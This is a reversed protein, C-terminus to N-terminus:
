MILFACWSNIVQNTKLIHLCFDKIHDNHYYVAAAMSFLINIRHGYFTSMQLAVPPTCSKLYTEFLLSFGSKQDAGPACLKTTARIFDPTSAVGWDFTDTIIIAKAWEKLAIEAQSGLNVLVHLNCKFHNIDILSKKLDDSFTNFNEIILPLCDTRWKELMNKLSSNVVRRDTMM